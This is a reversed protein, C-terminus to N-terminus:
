TSLQSSQRYALRDLRSYLPKLYVMSNDKCGYLIWSYVKRTCPNANKSRPEGVIRSLTYRLHLFISPSQSSDDHPGLLGLRGGVHRGIKPFHTYHDALVHKKNFTFFFFLPIHWKNASCLLHVTVCSLFNCSNTFNQFIFALLPKVKVKIGSSHPQVYPNM